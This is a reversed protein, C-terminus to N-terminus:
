TEQHTGDSTGDAQSHFPAQHVAASRPALPRTTDTASIVDVLRGLQQAVRPGSAGVFTVRARDVDPEDSPGFGLAVLTCGHRRLLGVVRDLAGSRRHLTVVLTHSEFRNDAVSAPTM